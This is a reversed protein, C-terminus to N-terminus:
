SSRRSKLSQSLCSFMAEQEFVYVHQKTKNAWPGPNALRARNRPHDQGPDSVAEQEDSSEM